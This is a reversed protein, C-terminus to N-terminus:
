EHDDCDFVFANQAQPPLALHAYKQLELHNIHDRAHGNEISSIKSRLKLKVLEAMEAVYTKDLSYDPPLRARAKTSARNDRHRLKLGCASLFMHLKKGLQDNSWGNQGPSREAEQSFLQVTNWYEKFLQTNKLKAEYVAELPGKFSHETDFPSKFGLVHLLENLLPAILLPKSQLPGAGLRPYLSPALMRILQMVKPAQPEPGHEELFAKDVLGIGWASKYLAKTYAWKEAESAMVRFIVVRLDMFQDHTLDPALLLKKAKDDLERKDLCRTTSQGLSKGHVRLQVKHGAAELLMCLEAFFRQASNKEAAHNHAAVELFADAAAICVEVPPTSSNYDQRVAMKVIRGKHETEQDLWQIHLRAEAVTMRPLAPRNLMGRAFCCSIVSSGLNRVRGTMQMLGWPTTSKSCVYVYMSHFHPVSFDVGAEITPSYAVLRYKLWEVEVNVLRKRNQDDTKSTYIMADQIDLAGADKLYNVLQEIANVSMSVVVVNRGATLDEQISDHWKGVNDACV